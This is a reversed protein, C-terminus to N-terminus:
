GGCCAECRLTIIKLQPTPLEQQSCSSPVNATDQVKCLTKNKICKTYV